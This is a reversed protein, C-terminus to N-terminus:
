DRRTADPGSGEGAGEGPGEGAGSGAGEGGGGPGEGGGGGGGGGGGKGALLVGNLTISSSASVEHLQDVNISQQLSSEITFDDPLFAAMGSLPSGIVGCIVITEIIRNSPKLESM